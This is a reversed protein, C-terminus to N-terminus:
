HLETLNRGLRRMTDFILESSMTAQSIADVESDFVVPERISLGTVRKRLFAAEEESILENEYKTVVIPTFNLVRGGGDVILIFFIDHCVNCVKARGAVKAWAAAGDRLKLRFVNKEEPVEVAEISVVSLGAEAASSRIKEKVEAANMEPPLNRWEKLSYAERAAAEGGAALADAVEEIFADSDAMVGLHARAVSTGGGLPLLVTFPTGGPNGIADLTFFEPDAIVPYPIDFRSRFEETEGQENGVAIGFFRVRDRLDERAEIGEHVRNMVPAQMACAYCYVNLFELVVLDADIDGLTFPGEKKLGLYAREEPSLKRDFSFSVLDGTAVPRFIGEGEGLLKKGAGALPVVLILLVSVLLATKVPKM